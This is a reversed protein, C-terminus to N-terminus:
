QLSSLVSDIEFMVIICQFVVRRTDQWVLPSRERQSGHEQRQILDIVTGWYSLLADLFARESIGLKSAQLDLVARIRSVTKTRDTDVNAPKNTTVLVEAFEHVAERLLHGITTFAESSDSAWLLTEAQAWKSYASPFKQQFSSSSIYNRIVSELREIPQGQRKMLEEYHKFGLPTVYFVDLDHGSRIKSISILGNKALVELDGEFVCRDRELWGEHMLQVGRPGITRSIIFHQRQERPIRREADVLDILLREQEPMLLM